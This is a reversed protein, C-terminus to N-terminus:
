SLCFNIHAFESLPIQNEGELVKYVGVEELAPSVKRCTAFVIYGQKQLVKCLQACVTFSSSWLCAQRDVAVSACHKM